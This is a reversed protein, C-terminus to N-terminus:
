ADLESQDTLTVAGMTAWKETHASAQQQLDQIRATLVEQSLTSLDADEEVTMEEADDARTREEIKLLATQEQELTETALKLREKAVALHATQESLRTQLAQVTNNLGQHQESLTTKQTHIETLQVAYEQVHVDQEHYSREADAVAQKFNQSQSELKDLSKTLEALQEDLRTDDQALARLAETAHSQALTIQQHKLSLAQWTEVEDGRRNQWTDIAQEAQNLETHATELEPTLTQEFAQLEAQPDSLTQKRQNLRELETDLQNNQKHLRERERELRETEAKLTSAFETRRQIITHQEQNVTKQQAQLEQTHIRHQHLAQTQSGLTKQLSEIQSDMENLQDDLETLRAENAIQEALRQGAEGTTKNFLTWHVAGFNGILCVTKTILIPKTQCEEALIKLYNRLSYFYVNGDVVYCRKFLNLKPSDILDPLSIFNTQVAKPLTVPKDDTSKSTDVLLGRVTKPKQNTNQNKKRSFNDSLDSSHLILKDINITLDIDEHPESVRASQLVSLVNGSLEAYPKGADSLQLTDALTPCSLLELTQNDTSSPTVKNNSDGRSNKLLRHLTDYESLSATHRKELANLETQTQSVKETLRDLEPLTTALEDDLTDLQTDLSALRTELSTLEAQSDNTGTQNDDNTQNLSRLAEMEGQWTAQTTQWRNFENQWQELAQHNLAIRQATENAKKTLSGVKDQMSQREAQLKALEAQANDKTAQSQALKPELDNLIAEFHAIKDQEAQWAKQTHQQKIETRHIREQLEKVQKAHTEKEHLVSQRAMELTHRKEKADDVLWTLQAVKDATAELKASLKRQEQQRTALQTQTTDHEQQINTHYITASHVQLQALRVQVKALKGKLAHYANAREAQKTLTGSQRALEQQMDQLRSLNDSADSLKRETEVRRALYRSVGAGEEIFARLELPTAEVIRGIMGQQIVSYSRASSGGGLGTGLFVDVVDRRRCRTGNIFYDSKGDRTVQRRVTLEHYLNLEHRIGTHEDQTHEFTMEVSALSKASKSEVGAFIVDSMAGGRLQKASSEGLVWRIADIVNSKGCGNPGVIATIGHRFHFTTPNAFSKFGALKLSKLRM